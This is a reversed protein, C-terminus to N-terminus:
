ERCLWHLTIGGVPRPKGLQLLLADPWDPYGKVGVIRSVNQTIDVMVASFNLGLILSFPRGFVIKPPRLFEM